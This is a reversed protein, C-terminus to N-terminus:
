DAPTLVRAPLALERGVSPFLIRATDAEGALSTITGAEGGVVAALAVLDDVREPVEDPAIPLPNLLRFRQMLAFTM